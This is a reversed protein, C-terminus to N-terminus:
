KCHIKIDHQAVKKGKRYTFTCEQTHDEIRKSLTVENNAGYACQIWKGDDFNGELKYTYSWENKGPHSTFDAIDGRLEPAGYIPAAAHLYLPASVFPTWGQETDILQISKPAISLPCEISQSAAQSLSSALMLFCTSAFPVSKIKM